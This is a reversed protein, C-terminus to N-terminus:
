LQIRNTNHRWRCRTSFENPTLSSLSTHPRDRHDDTRWGEIIRRAGSLSRLLPENRCLDCFCGDLSEM